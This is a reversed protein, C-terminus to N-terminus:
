IVDTGTQWGKQRRKRSHYSHKERDTVHMHQVLFFHTQSRGARGQRLLGEVQSFVRQLGPSSLQVSSMHLPHLSKGSSKEKRGDSGESPSSTSEGQVGQVCFLTEGCEVREIHL